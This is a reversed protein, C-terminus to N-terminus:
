TNYRNMVFALGKTYFGTIIDSSTIIAPAILTQQSPALPTIVYEKKGHPLCNDGVGFRLRPYVQTQLMHAIHKLGNHGGDGGKPKIRLKGLPLHLDDTIILLQVKKCMLKNMWYYVAHGSLNMYTAPKLLHVEQGRHKILAMSGLHVDAFSTQHKAVFHDLIAFGINHPSAVYQEGINGLGVVLYRM